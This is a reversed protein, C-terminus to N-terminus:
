PANTSPEIRFLAGVPQVGVVRWELAENQRLLLRLRYPGTQLWLLAETDDRELSWWAMVFEYWRIQLPQSPDDFITRIKEGTFVARALRGLDLPPDDPGPENQLDDLARAAIAPVDVLRWLEPLDREDVARVLQWLSYTATTPLLAAGAGLGIAVLAAAFVFFWARREMRRKHQM